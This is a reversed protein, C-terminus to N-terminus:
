QGAHNIRVVEAGAQGAWISLIGSGCGADLVRMGPKIQEQIIAKLALARHTRRLLDYHLYPDM